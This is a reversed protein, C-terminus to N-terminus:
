WYDTADPLGNTTTCVASIKEIRNVDAIFEAFERVQTNTKHIFNYSSNGSENETFAHEMFHLFGDYNYGAM